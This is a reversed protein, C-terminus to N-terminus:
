NVLTVLTHLRRATDTPAQWCVHITVRNFGTATSDIIIQQMTANAGPLQSQVATAWTTVTASTSADGSFNCTEAAGTAQHSFAALSTLLEAPNATRSVQLAIRQSIDNAVRAAESRYRADSQATASMASVGVMGLIGLMFILIGVLAEILFMGSQHNRRRM